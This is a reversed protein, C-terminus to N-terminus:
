KDVVDWRRKGGREEYGVRGQEVLRELMYSVTSVSGAWGAEVIERFTPFRRHHALGYIIIWDRLEQYTETKSRM